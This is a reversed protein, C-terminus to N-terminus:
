NRHTLPISSSSSACSTSEKRGSRTQKRKRRLPKAGATRRLHNSPRTADRGNTETAATGTGTGTAIDDIDTEIVTATKAGDGTDITRGEGDTM